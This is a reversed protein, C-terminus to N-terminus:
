LTWALRPEAALFEMLFAACADRLAGTACRPLDCRLTSSTMFIAWAATSSGIVHMVGKRFYALCYAFVIECVCKCWPFARISLKDALDLCEECNRWNIAVQLPTAHLQRRVATVFCAVLRCVRHYISCAQRRQRRTEM